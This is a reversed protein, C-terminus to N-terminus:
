LWFYDAYDQVLPQLVRVHCNSYVVQKALFELIKSKIDNSDVRHNDRM